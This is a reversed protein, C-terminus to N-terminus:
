KRGVTEENTPFVEDWHKRPGETSESPTGYKSWSHVLRRMDLVYQDTTKGPRQLFHIIYSKYDELLHGASQYHYKFHDEEPVDFKKMLKKSLPLKHKLYIM